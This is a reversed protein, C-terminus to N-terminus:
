KACLARISRLAEKVPLTPKGLKTNVSNHFHVTWLLFARRGQQLVPLIPHEKIYLRMHERCFRCPLIPCMSKLFRTYARFDKETPEKPFTAAMCHLLRWTGEGWIIPNALTKKKPVM